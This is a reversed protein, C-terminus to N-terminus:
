PPLSLAFHCMWERCFNCLFFLHFKKRVKKKIEKLGTQIGKPSKKPPGM